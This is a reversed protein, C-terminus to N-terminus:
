HTQDFTDKDKYGAVYGDNEKVNRDTYDQSSEAIGKGTGDANFREKQVGTFNDVDTLRQVVDMEELPRTTDHLEPKQQALKGTMENYMDDVNRDSAAANREALQRLFKTFQEFSMAHGENGVIQKYVVGTDATSLNAKGSSFLGAERLWKDANHLTLNNGHFNDGGFAGYRNYADRLAQTNNDGVASDGESSRENRQQQQQNPQTSVDTM